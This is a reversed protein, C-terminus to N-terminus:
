QKAEELKQTLTGGGTNPVAITPTLKHKASNEEDPQIKRRETCSTGRKNVVM